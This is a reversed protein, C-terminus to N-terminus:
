PGCRRSARAGEAESPKAEEHGGPGGHARLAGGAELAGGLRIRPVTVEEVGSSGPHLEEIRYVRDVALDKVVQVTGSGPWRVTLHVIREGAGLGIEQQLSSSGFSGGTGVLQHITRRDGGPKEVEVAIRAGVGSANARAGRLRLTVWHEPGGPNEYLANAFADSPFAGGIQHLVDQDGDNDVDGFAFGHGKQLHGFGGSFTVDEFRRGDRNWLAVDPMLADIDPSGTGLLVDPFGDNDLDGFNAGMPLLPRLLGVQASVDTFRGGDNRYLVSYSMPLTPGFYSASVMPIPSSHDAVFLDLDGDNDFDFFWCAFALRSPESIGVEAAVDTFTGDGDNRYFRNAGLNSVFLDPDGDDDYDGWTAGKAFRRNTVGAAEAVDTFTGDGENRFLQSPYALDPDDGMYRFFTLPSQWSDGELLPSLDFSGPIRYLSSPWPLQGRVENALYLDLDGDGDFDAWAGAQTPYAPEALGAARTVDEFGGVPEHLRNRLLSNRIRGDDALWGGRLVLLDPHGDNDYDAHVLNLGGLQGALGWARTVEDFGGRGDNRFARLSACPDASSTVLDLLGDGDLDEMVAGGALDVIDTGLEPARDVFRRFPTASAFANPPLRHAAPVAEPPDGAVRSTLNLLWRAQPDGPHEELYALLLGSAARTHDPRLHIAEPAFPVVCSAAGHHAVCNEDEALQLHALARAVLLSRRLGPPSSEPDPFTESGLAKTASDLLELAEAAGGDRRLLRGALRIQAEIRPLGAPAEALERRRSEVPERGWYYGTAALDRCVEALDASTPSATARPGKDARV